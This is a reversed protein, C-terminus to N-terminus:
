GNKIGECKTECIDPYDECDIACFSKAIPDETCCIECCKAKQRNQEANVLIAGTFGIIIIGIILWKEWDVM